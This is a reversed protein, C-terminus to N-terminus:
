KKKFFSKIRDSVLIASPLIFLSAFVCNFMSVSILLGFFIIPKFSSLVFIIFGFILSIATFMMPRSAFALTKDIADRVSVGTKLIRRYNLLFHLSGDIGVGVAIAGIMVTGPDLAIGFISMISFNMLVGFILPIISIFSYFLSRFIPFVVLIVLIVSSIINIIQDSVLYKSIRALLLLEGWIEVTFRGDEEAIKSLDNSMTEILELLEQESIMYNTRENKSATRAQFNIATFDNNIIGKVGDDKSAALLNFFLNLTTNSEPIDFDGYIVNNLDEALTVPSLNWGLKYDDSKVNKDIYNQIKKAALLGERTKFFNRKNEKSRLAINFSTSGKFEKQLFTLGEKIKDGDKFFASVETEVKINPIVFFAVIM